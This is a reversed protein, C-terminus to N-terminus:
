ISFEAGDLLNKRVMNTKTKVIQLHVVINKYGPSGTKRFAALM